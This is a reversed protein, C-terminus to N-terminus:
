DSRHRHYGLADPGAHVSHSQLETRINHYGKQLKEVAALEEAALDTAQPEVIGLKAEM